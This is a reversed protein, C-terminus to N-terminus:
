PPNIHGTVLRALKLPEEPMCNGRWAVHLDPRLLILDCGYLERAREDRLDLVRFPARLFAFAKQLGTSDETSFRLLTFGLDYGVQDQVASGDALWM